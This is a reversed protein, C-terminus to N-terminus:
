ESAAARVESVEVDSGALSNLPEHAPRLEAELMEALVIGARRALLPGGL